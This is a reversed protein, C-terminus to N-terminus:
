AFFVRRYPSLLADVAFPVVSMSGGVAERNENWHSVLMLAAQKIAQPVASAAGYGYVATISIADPRSYTSPWSQDPKLTVYTGRADTLMQYVSTALTQQVNSGDYYTVGIISQVPELPLRNKSCFWGFDQRWTQTVLARGLIGSYGDIHDTAAQVFSSITMTTPADNEPARCFRIAEQLDILVEAPAITRVPRLTTEHETQWMM